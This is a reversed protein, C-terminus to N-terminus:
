EVLVLEVHELREVPVLRDAGEGPVVWLLPAQAELELKARDREKVVVWEGDDRTAGQELLFGTWSVGALDRLHCKIWWLEPRSSEYSM